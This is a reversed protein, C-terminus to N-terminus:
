RSARSSPLGTLYDRIVARPASALRTAKRELVVFVHRVLKGMGELGFLLVFPREADGDAGFPRSLLRDLVGGLRADHDFLADDLRHLLRHNSQGRPKWIM